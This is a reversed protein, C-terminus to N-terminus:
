ISGLEDKLSKDSKRFESFDSFELKAGNLFFELLNLSLWSIEGTQISLLSCCYSNDMLLLGCKANKINKM